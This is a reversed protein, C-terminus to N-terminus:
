PNRWNYSAGEEDGQFRSSKFRSTHYSSCERKKPGGYFSEKRTNFREWESYPVQNSQSGTKTWNSCNNEWQQSWERKPAGGGLTKNNGWPDCITHTQFGSRNRDDWANQSWSGNPNYSWDKQRTDNNWSSNWANDPTSSSNQVWSDNGGGIWGTSKSSGATRTHNEEWPNEVNKVKKSDDWANEGDKTNKTDQSTTCGSIDDLNSSEVEDPNFFQGELDLILGPDIKANWDVEDVYKCSDALPNDCHHGNIMAWYRKKADIFTLQSASDDWKAVNDYCSIYKKMNVVKNWPIGVSKFFDIEWSPASNEQIVPQTEDDYDTPPFNKYQNYNRRPVYRRNWKGM